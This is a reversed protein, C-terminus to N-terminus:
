INRRIASVTFLVLASLSLITTVIAIFNSDIKFRSFFRRVVDSQLVRATLLGAVFLGAFAILGLFTIYHGGVEFLPKGLLPFSM